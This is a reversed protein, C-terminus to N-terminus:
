IWNVLIIGDGKMRWYAASHINKVGGWIDKGAHGLVIIQLNSSSCWIGQTHLSNISKDPTPM